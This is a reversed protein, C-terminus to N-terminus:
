IGQGIFAALPALVPRTCRVLAGWTGSDPVQGLHYVHGFTVQFPFRATLDRPVYGLVAGALTQIRIADPDYENEPEKVLM